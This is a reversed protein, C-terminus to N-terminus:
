IEVLICKKKGLGMGWDDAMGNSAAKKLQLEFSPAQILNGDLGIGKGPNMDLLM